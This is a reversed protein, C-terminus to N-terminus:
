RLRFYEIIFRINWCSSKIKTIRRVFLILVGAKTSILSPGSWTWTDQDHLSVPTGQAMHSALPSCWPFKISINLRVQFPLRSIIYDSLRVYGLTLGVQYDQGCPLIISLQTRRCRCVFRTIWLIATLQGHATESERRCHRFRVDNAADRGQSDSWDRGTYLRSCIRKCLAPTLIHLRGTTQWRPM